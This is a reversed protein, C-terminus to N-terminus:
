INNSIKNIEASIKSVIQSSLNNVKEQSEAEVLIRLLPETGSPRIYIRCNEWSNTSYNEIVEDFLKKNKRDIQKFNFDLNINTLKQPFPKFSTSLWNELSIKKM